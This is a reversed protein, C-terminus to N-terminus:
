FTMEETLSFVDSLMLEQTLTLLNKDSKYEGSTPNGWTLYIYVLLAESDYLTALCLRLNETSKHLKRWGLIIDILGDRFAM